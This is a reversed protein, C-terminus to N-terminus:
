RVVFAVENVDYTNGSSLRTEVIYTGPEADSPINLPQKTQHGGAPKTQSAPDSQQLVEGDKKLAWQYTVDAGAGQSAPVSLSYDSHITTQEGPAVTKPMASGKNLKILVSDTAPTFGYLREDEYSSRVQQTEHQMLKVAGWGIAAGAVGAAIGYGVNGTLLGTTLGAALAGFAAGGLQQNEQTTACGSIFSTSLTLSVALALPKAQITM